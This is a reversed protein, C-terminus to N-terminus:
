WLFSALIGEMKECLSKPLLFCTMAYTPIAHLVVKIFVEEGGQLLFRLPGDM